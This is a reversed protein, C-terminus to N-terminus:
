VCGGAADAYSCWVCRAQPGFCDNPLPDHNSESREDSYQKRRHQPRAADTANNGHVRLLLCLGRGFLSQLRNHDGAGHDFPGAGLGRLGDRDELRVGELVLADRTHLLRQVRKRGVGRRYVDGLGDPRKGAATRVGVQAVQATAAGQHEEVALPQGGAGEGASGGDATRDVQTTNRERSDVVDLHKPFAGRRKVARVRDRAHDVELGLPIVLPGFDLGIEIMRLFLAAARARHIQGESEPVQRAVAIVEHDRSAVVLL